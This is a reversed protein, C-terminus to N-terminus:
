LDDIKYKDEDGEYVGRQIEHSGLHRGGVDLAEMDEESLGFGLGDLQGGVLFGL